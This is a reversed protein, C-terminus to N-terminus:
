NRLVFTDEQLKCEISSVIEAVVLWQKFDYKDVLALPYKNCRLIGKAAPSGTAASTLGFDDTESREPEAFGALSPSRLNRLLSTVYSVFQEAVRKETGSLIGIAEQYVQQELLSSARRECAALEDAFLHLFETAFRSLSTEVLKACAEAVKRAKETDIPVSGVRGAPSESASFRASHQKQEVQEAQESLAAFSRASIGTPFHVGLGSEMRRVAVGTLHHHETEDAGQVTFHVELPLQKHEPEQEGIALRLGASDGQIFMGGPCFVYITGVQSRGSHFHVLADMSVPIRPDRWREHAPTNM